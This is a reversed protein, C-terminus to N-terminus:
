KMKEGTRIKIAYDLSYVAVIGDGALGTVAHDSIVKAVEDAKEDPVIIDIRDHITYPRFLRVEEGTGKVPTITLARVDITELVKVIHELATTRVIATVMKM